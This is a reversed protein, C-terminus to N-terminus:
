NIYNKATYLVNDIKVVPLITYVIVVAPTISNRQGMTIFSLDISQGPYGTYNIWKSSNFSNFCMSVITPDSSILALSNDNSGFETIKDFLAGSSIATPINYPSPLMTVNLTCNDTDGGYLM